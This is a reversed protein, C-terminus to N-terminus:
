RVAALESEALERVAVRMEEPALVTVTGLRAVVRRALWATGAFPVDFLVSGDAEVSAVVAGPWERESFASGGAIRLRAMPLEAADLARLVIPRGPRADPDFREGTGRASRVRELKFTRWAGAARCWGSLYWAGREAFLASPEVERCRSEGHGESVHEIELVERHAVCGAVEEFVGLDHGSIASRLVQEVEAAADPTAIADILRKALPDDAEFGAAQLAAALAETESVSLRIPGRLAPVQGFVEVEDGDVLVPVLGFPDYPAVGCFSLTTLDAAIEASTVGLQDALWSLPIRTDPVLRALLAILRRARASSNPRAM